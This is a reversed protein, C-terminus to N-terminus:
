RKRAHKYDTALNQRTRRSSLQLPRAEGLLYIVAPHTKRNEDNPPLLEYKNEAQKLGRKIKDKLVFQKRKAHHRYQKNYFLYTVLKLAERYCRIASDLQGLVHFCGALGNYAPGHTPQCQITEIYSLIADEWLSLRVQREAMKFYGSSCYPHKQIAATYLEIAKSHDAEHFARHRLKQADVADKKSVEFAKM